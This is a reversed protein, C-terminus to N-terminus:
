PKMEADCLFRKLPMGKNSGGQLKWCLVRWADIWPVDATFPIKPVGM